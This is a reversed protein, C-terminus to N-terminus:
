CKMRLLIMKEQNETEIENDSVSVSENYCLLLNTKLSEPDIFHNYSSAGYSFNLFM